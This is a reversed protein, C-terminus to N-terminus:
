SRSRRAQWASASSCVVRSRSPWRRRASRCSCSVPPTSCGAPALVRGAGFRDALAGAFPQGIGWFLNQLAIALAFAEREWGRFASLPETFLGLSTRPGFSLVGILCGAVVLVAPRRWWPV